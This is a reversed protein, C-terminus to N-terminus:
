GVRRCRPPITDACRGPQVRGRRSIRPVSRIGPARLPSRKLASRSRGVSPRTFLPLVAADASFWALDAYNDNSNVPTTSGVSQVGRGGPSDRKAPTSRTERTALSFVLLSIAVCAGGIGIAANTNAVTLTFVGLLSGLAVSGQFAAIYLSSGAEFEAPAARGMWTQLAVPIAGYGLGWMGIAVIPLVAGGTAALIVTGAVILAAATVVTAQLHRRGFPAVVFNGVLGAAGFTFLAITLGSGTLGATDRLFPSIYTYGLFNGTVLLVTTVLGVRSPRTRLLRALDGVRVRRDVGLRPLLVALLAFVVVALGATAAFAIRWGESLGLSVAAPVGIVTALSIGGFIVATARAASGGVVLRGGVTGGIAWFGGIGAGLVTRAALMVGFNPAFAALTDAVTFLMATGLLFVRRDLRGAAVTLTPAAIAAVLAPVTVMLGALATSIKLDRAIPELLGVPLFENTVLVFTGLAITLVAAWRNQVVM